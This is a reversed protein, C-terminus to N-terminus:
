NSYYSLKKNLEAIFQSRTEDLEKALQQAKMLWKSNEDSPINDSKKKFIEKLIQAMIVYQDQNRNTWYKICNDFVLNTSIKFEQITNIQRHKLNAFVDNLCIKQQIIRDYDPISTTDLPDNFSKALPEKRIEDIIKMCEKREFDNMGQQSSM